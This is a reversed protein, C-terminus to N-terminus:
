AGVVVKRLPDAFERQMQEIPLHYKQLEVLIHVCEPRTNCPCSHIAVEHGTRARIADIEQLIADVRNIPCTVECVDVMRALCVM